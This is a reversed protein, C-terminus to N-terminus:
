YWIRIKANKSVRFIEKWLIRNRYMDRMSDFKCVCICMSPVDNFDDAISNVDVDNDCCMRSLRTCIIMATKYTRWEQQREIWHFFRLIHQRCWQTVDHNDYAHVPLFSGRSIIIIIIFFFFTRLLIYLWFRYHSQDKKSQTTSKKKKWFTMDAPMWCSEWIIKHRFLGLLSFWKIVNLQHFFLETM